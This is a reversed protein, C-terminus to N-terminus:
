VRQYMTQRVTGGSNPGFPLLTAVGQVALVIIAALLLKMRM